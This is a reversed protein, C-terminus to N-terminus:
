GWEAKAAVAEPIPGLHERGPKPHKWDEEMGPMAMSGPSPILSTMSTSISCCHLWSLDRLSATRSDAYGSKSDMVSTKLVFSRNSILEVIFHVMHRHPLMRFLNPTLGRHWVTDFAATLDVLVAGATEKAEFCDETDKTLLTIQDVTSWGKHFGAQEHPLQPDIIPNIRGHIMRELIIWVRHDPISTAVPSQVEVSEIEVLVLTLKQYSKTVLQLSRYCRPYRSCAPWYASPIPVQLTGDPVLTLNQLLKHM